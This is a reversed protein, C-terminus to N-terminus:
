ITIPNICLPEVWAIFEEVARDDGEVPVVYPNKTILNEYDVNLIKGANNVKERKTEKRIVDVTNASEFWMSKRTEEIENTELNVKSYHQVFAVTFSWPALPIYQDMIVKEGKENENERRHKLFKM